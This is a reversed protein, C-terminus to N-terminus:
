NVKFLPLLLRVKQTGGMARSAVTLDLTRRDLWHEAVVHAGDPSVAVPQHTSRGGSAGASATPGVPSVALLGLLV